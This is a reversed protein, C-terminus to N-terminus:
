REGDLYGLTQLRRRVAQVEQATLDASGDGNGDERLGREAMVQRLVYVIFDTPSRFGSGEVAGHVRDYLARPIKITVRADPMHIKVGLSQNSGM